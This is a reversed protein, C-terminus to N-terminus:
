ALVVRDRPYYQEVLVQYCRLRVESPLEDLKTQGVLPHIFLGDLPELACKQIYEHARRMPRHSQLGVVPRWGRQRFRSRAAAPDLRYAAFVKPPPRALM